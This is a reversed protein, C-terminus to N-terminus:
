SSMKKKTPSEVSFQSKLQSEIIPIVARLRYLHKPDNQHRNEVETWDKSNLNEPKKRWYDLCKRLNERNKVGYQDAIAPFSMMQDLDLDPMPERGLALDELERLKYLVDDTTAPIQSQFAMAHKPLHTAATEKAWNWAEGFSFSVNDVYPTLFEILADVREPIEDRSEPVNFSVVM